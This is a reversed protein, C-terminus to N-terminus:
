GQQTAERVLKVMEAPRRMMDPAYGGPVIVADFEVAKVNEAQADVNVPYGHKSTYSRTNGAGIITVDPHLDNGDAAAARPRWVGPVRCGGQRARQDVDHAHSGEQM